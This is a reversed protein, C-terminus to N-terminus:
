SFYVQEVGFKIANLSEVLFCHECVTSLYSKHVAEMEKLNECKEIKLDVQEGMSQLVHTMLHFHISQIAYIMWFRLQELRRMILDIMEFPAYPMRRKHSRPFRLKELTTIGWKVKLLFSFVKNYSAIDDPTIIHSLERNFHYTVM